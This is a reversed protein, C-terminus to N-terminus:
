TNTIALIDPMVFCGIKNIIRKRVAIAIKNISYDGELERRLTLKMGCNQLVHLM